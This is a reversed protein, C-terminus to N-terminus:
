GRNRLMGGVMNFIDDAASGDHDRDLLQGLMGILPSNSEQAQREENLVGAVGQADLGQERQTRGLAGMVIPALMMLLKGVTAADLGSTQSIGQEVTSQKGGFIHGLMGASSNTGGGTIVGLLDGLISGDHDNSLASHLSQAGQDSASNRALAGILMPLAAQIANGVAGEDAGLTQSIQGVTEGGLHESLINQLNM